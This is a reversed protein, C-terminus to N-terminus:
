RGDGGLLATWNSIAHFGITTRSTTPVNLNFYEPREPMSFLRVPTETRFVSGAPIAASM